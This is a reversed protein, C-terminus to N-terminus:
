SKSYQFGGFVGGGGGPTLAGMGNGLGHAAVGPTGTLGPHNVGSTGSGNGNGYSNNGNLDAGQREQQHRPRENSSGDVPSLDKSNIGWIQNRLRDDLHGHFAVRRFEFFGKGTVLSEPGAQHSPGARKIGLVAALEDMGFRAGQMAVVTSSPLVQSSMNPNRTYQKVVFKLDYHRPFFKRVLSTFQSEEEPLQECIMVKLLYGFDYGAHFSIWCVNRSLVLGSPMLAAGFEMRDIGNKELRAFDIGSKQLLEICEQSCMDNELSFHFNFQWTCPYPTLTAPYTAANLSASDLPQTPPLEGDATFLTIGLQIIQLFDVNCRLTQYHYQQKDAFEGVPRAVVSPTMTIFPYDDVLDRIRGMEEHLNDQWVERVRFKALSRSDSPGHHIGNHAQQQQLAAGHAFGLKAERSGLGTGNTGGMGQMDYGGALGANIGGGSAFANFSTQSPFGAQSNLSPPPLVSSGPAQPHASPHHLHQQQQQPIHPFGSVGHPGGFRNATPAM